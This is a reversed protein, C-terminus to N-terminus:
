GLWFLVINYFPESRDVNVPEIRDVWSGCLRGERGLGAAWADLCAGALFKADKEAPKGLFTFTTVLAVGLRLSRFPWYFSRAGRDASSCGEGAPGMVEYGCYGGGTGRPSWDGGLWFIFVTPESKMLIFFNLAGVPDRTCRGRVGM